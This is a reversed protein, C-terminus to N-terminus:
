YKYNIMNCQYTSGKEHRTRLICASLNNRALKLFREFSFVYGGKGIKFNKYEEM